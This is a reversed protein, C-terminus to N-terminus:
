PFLPGFIASSFAKIATAAYQEPTVGVPNSSNHAFAPMMQGDFHLRSINYSFTFSLTSSKDSPTSFFLQLCCLASHHLCGAYLPSIWNWSLFPSHCLIALPAMATSSSPPLHAYWCQMLPVMCQRIIKLRTVDSGRYM